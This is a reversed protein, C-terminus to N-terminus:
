ITQVNCICKDYRHGCRVCHPQTFKKAQHPLGTIEDIIGHGACTKCQKRSIDTTGSDWSNGSGNCIPCKQYSM